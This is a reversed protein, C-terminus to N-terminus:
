CGLTGVVDVKVYRITWRVQPMDRPDAALREALQCKPIKARPVVVLLPVVNLLAHSTRRVLDDGAFPRRTVRDPDDARPEHAGDNSVFVRHKGHADSV